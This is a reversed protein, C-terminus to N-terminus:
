NAGGKLYEKYLDPNEDVAQTIAKAKSIGKTKIIEFEEKPDTVVKGKAHSWKCVSPNYTVHIKERMVGVSLYKEIERIMEDTFEYNLYTTDPKPANEIAQQKKLEERAIEKRKKQEVIRQQKAIIHKETNPVELTQPFLSTTDACKRKHEVVREKIKTKVFETKEEETFDEFFRFATAKGTLVYYAHKLRTLLNYEYNYGKDYKWASYFKDWVRVKFEAKTDTSINDILEPKM